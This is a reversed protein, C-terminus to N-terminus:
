FHVCDHYQQHFWTDLCELVWSKKHKHYLLHRVASKKGQPCFNAYTHVYLQFIAILKPQGNGALCSCKRVGSESSSRLVEPFSTWVCVKIHSSHKLSCALHPKNGNELHLRQLTLQSAWHNTLCEHTTFLKSSPGVLPEHDEATAAM